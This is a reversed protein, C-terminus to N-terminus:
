PVDVVVYYVSVRLTNAANGGTLAGQAANTMKVSLNQEAVELSARVTGYTSTGSVFGKQPLIATYDEGSDFLSTVGNGAAEDLTALGVNGGVQIFLAATAAINTYADTYNFQVVASLPVILKAAGQAAVLEVATTPLAKIQADTLTVTARSLYGSTGDGTPQSPQFSRLAAQIQASFPGHAM